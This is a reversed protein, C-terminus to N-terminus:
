EKDEEPAKAESDEKKKKKGALKIAAASALAGVALGAGGSLALTGATFLSGSTSPSGEARKFYVFISKSGSNYVYLTNNLNEAADVGFMHMGETYGAPIQLDGIVVKLSDALIPMEAENKAYYLALWQRGVDGNLDGIEGLVKYFEASSSRNCLAAKYYASQNKIVVKEGKSNFATIDKEDVMYRPIPTFEVKYYNKLDRWTLYTTVAILLIMVVGFGTALNGTTTNRAQLRSILPKNAAVTRELGAAEKQFTQILQATQPASVSEAFGADALSTLNKNLSQIHTQVTKLHSEINLMSRIAKNASVTMGLTVGFAITCAGTLGIFGYTLGSLKSGFQDNVMQAARGRLYESTLGVGGPEYIARDVGEYISAVEVQDFSTDKYGKEDTGGLMVLEELTLLDLGARQGDSLCAVVPYLLYSEAEIEEYPTTFFDLLTGGDYEIGELFEKCAVDALAATLQENHVQLEVAAKAYAEEEEVTISEPDNKMKEIIANQASMDKDQLEELLAKTEDYKDLIEKFPEWMELLRMADDYYNKDLERLAKTYSLGTSDVLDDLTTESLREIWNTEETDSARLLLNEIALTAKGNCQAIITVLDAHKAKEEDSLANYADVGLENKTQNLLLDGLPADNCDDDTYKNLVDHIYRARAKNSEISSNYNERYERIAAMFTDVFPTIQANIYQDMLVDYDDTKYGGKMNMLAIDTIADQRNTTTKYGIYVVKDGRSGLGGGANDNVDVNKGSGDKLITYGELGKEAEKANNGMGIKIESIYLKSGSGSAMARAPSSVAMILAIAMAVISTLVKKM